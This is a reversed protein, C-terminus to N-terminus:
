APLNRSVVRAFDDFDVIHRTSIAFVIAWDIADYNHVALNRFGVARRLSQALEPVIIDAEALRDFTEGMTQPVAVSLPLLHAGIDVCLQIARTLNLTVIDQADPDNALIEASAPCRTRVRDLCRRLSELKQEIVRRDM